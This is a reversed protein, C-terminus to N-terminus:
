LTNLEDFFFFFCYNGDNTTSNVAQNHQRNDSEQNEPLALSDLIGAKTIPRTIPRSSLDARISGQVISSLSGPLPCNIFTIRTASPINM